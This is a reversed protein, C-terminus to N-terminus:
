GRGEVVELRKVNRAPAGVALWGDPVDDLVVSNAGVFAGDGVRVGAGVVVHAGLWCNRGISTGAAEVHHVFPVELPTRVHVSDSITTYEGIAAMDGVTTSSACHLYTGYSIICDDGIRLEGSTDARFGRRLATREGVVMAGGLFLLAADDEIVSGAGVVLANDTDAQVDVTIRRGLRVDPALRVSLRSAVSRAVLQARLVFWARRWRWRLRRSTVLGWFLVPGVARRWPARRPRRNV